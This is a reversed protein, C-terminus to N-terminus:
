TSVHSTLETIGKQSVDSMKLPLDMLLNAIIVVKGAADHGEVDGTPDAEAYGKEQAEALVEGYNAGAEMETLIYNTTGNLIGQVKQIGAGKLMEMGMRLVPTGALVTGEVGLEVKAEQALALLEPFFLATPGKNTTVVHRGTELAARIHSLAPEGTELDTYSMEIVIDADVEKITRMADWGHEPASVSKLDSNEEVAALLEAADLGNPDYVSGKLLDSVAVIEFRAGFEKELKEGRDAIISAFGQGVNGFGILALRYTQM